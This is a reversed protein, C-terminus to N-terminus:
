RVLARDAGFTTLRSPCGGGPAYAGGRGDAHDGATKPAPSSWKNRKQLKGLATQKAETTALSTSERDGGSPTSLVCVSAHIVGM